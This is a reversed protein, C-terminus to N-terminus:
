CVESEEGTLYGVRRSMEVCADRDEEAAAQLLRLWDDMFEKSYERTAGFDVLAVRGAKEGPAAAAPRPNYLFNSYNPDTQM